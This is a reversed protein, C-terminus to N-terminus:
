LQVVQRNSGDASTATIITTGISLAKIVASNTGPGDGTVRAVNPNSSSWTANVYAKDSTSYLVWILEETNPLMKIESM